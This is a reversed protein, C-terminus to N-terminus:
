VFPCGRQTDLANKEKEKEKEKEKKKEKELGLAVCLSPRKSIIISISFGGLIRFSM